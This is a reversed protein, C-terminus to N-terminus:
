NALLPCRRGGMETVLSKGAPSSRTVAASRM